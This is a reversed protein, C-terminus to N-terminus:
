PRAPIDRHHYARAALARDLIVGIVTLLIAFTLGGAGLQRALGMAAERSPAEDFARWGIAALITLGGVGALVLALAAIRRTSWSKTIQQFGTM